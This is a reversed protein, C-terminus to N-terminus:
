KERDEPRYEASPRRGNAESEIGPSPHECVRPRRGETKDLTSCECERRKPYCKECIARAAAKEAELREVWRSMASLQALLDQERAQAEALRAELEAIRLYASM